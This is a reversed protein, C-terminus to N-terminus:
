ISPYGSALISYSQTQRLTLELEAPPQADAVRTMDVM